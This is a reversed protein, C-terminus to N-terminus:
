LAIYKRKESASLMLTDPELRELPQLLGMFLHSRWENEGACKRALVRSEECYLRALRDVVGDQEFLSATDSFIRGLQTEVETPAEPFHDVFLNADAMNMARYQPSNAKKIPSFSRQRQTLKATRRRNGRWSMSSPTPSPPMEIESQNECEDAWQQVFARYGTGHDKASHSESVADLKELTEQTLPPTSSRDCEFACHLVDSPDNTPELRRCKCHHASDELLEIPDAGELVRKM